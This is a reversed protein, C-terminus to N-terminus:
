GASGTTQPPAANRSLAQKQTHFGASKFIEPVSQSQLRPMASGAQTYSSIKRM